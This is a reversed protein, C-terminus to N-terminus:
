DELVIVYGPMARKYSAKTVDSAKDGSNLRIADAVSMRRTLVIPNEPFEFQSCTARASTPDIIKLVPLTFGSQLLSPIPALPTM